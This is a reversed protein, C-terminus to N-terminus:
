SKGKSSASKGGTSQKVSMAKFSESKKGKSASKISQQYSEEIKISEGIMDDELESHSQILGRSKSITSDKQMSQSYNSSSFREAKKPSQFTVNKKNGSRTHTPQYKYSKSASEDVQAEGEVM